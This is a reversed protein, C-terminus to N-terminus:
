SHQYTDSPGSSAMTTVWHMYLLVKEVCLVVVHLVYLVCMVTVTCYSMCTCLIYIYYYHVYVYQFKLAMFNSQTESVLLDSSM